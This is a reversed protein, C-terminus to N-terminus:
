KATGAAPTVSRNPDAPRPRPPRGSGRHEQRVEGRALGAFTREGIGARIHDKLEKQLQAAVEPKDKAINHEEGPDKTLDFLM